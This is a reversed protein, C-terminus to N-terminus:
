RGARAWLGPLGIPEEPPAALRPGMLPRVSVLSMGVWWLRLEKLGLGLLEQPEPTMSIVGRLLHWSFCMREIIKKGERSSEV